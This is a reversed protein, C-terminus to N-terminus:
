ARKPGAPGAEAAPLAAALATALPVAAPLTAAPVGTALFPADTDPAAMSGCDAATVPEESQVARLETTLRELGDSSVFSLGETFELSTRFSSTWPRM